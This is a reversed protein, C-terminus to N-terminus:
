KLVSTDLQDFGEVLEKAIAKLKDIGGPIETEINLPMVPDHLSMRFLIWGKVDKTDFSIRIGEYSVPLTYNKEKARQEFVKLVEKGYSKFDEAKIKFRGEFDEVLPPLKSIFDGLSQGKAKAKALNAVLRVALFAGDDLYYNDKLAGHGSTEMALPSVEGKSNLEICKNIVNKYGRMYRLHKLGLVKELFYTLRDSTVSDTIITSGPYEQALIASVLAIIADRNVEEGSSLVCSMRDVDTDFILGLDAKNDLTAKQIAAMADKNEPNPIHNPFRGDPDLFASGKTDAGLKDLIKAFFGGSGNGADIVIKLGSLPKSSVDANLEKCISNMLHDSYISLLDLKQCASIDMPSYEGEKEALEIIKSIDDHELGGHVDFFKLGNRNFPLHSATIMISGDFKTQEFVTSMFMAPTTALGCRVVKAGGSILGAVVSEELSPGSLRSDMGIGIVVNKSTKESLWKAFAAGIKFCAGQTLNVSEGEVGDLAIGRVDSGNQLNTLKGM